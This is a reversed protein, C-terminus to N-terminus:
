SESSHKKSPGHVVNSVFRNLGAHLEVYIADLISANKSVAVLYSAVNTICKGAERLHFRKNTRLNMKLIAYGANNISKKLRHHIETHLKIMELKQSDINHDGQKVNNSRPKTLVVNAKSELMQALEFTSAFSRKLKEIQKLLKQGRPKDDVQIFKIMKNMGYTFQDLKAITAKLNALHENGIDRYNELIDQM